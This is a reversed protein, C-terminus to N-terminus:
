DPSGRSIFKKGSMVHLAKPMVTIQVPTEGIVHGDVMVPMAPSTVICVADALFHGIRPDEPKGLYVGGTIYKILDLKTLGDFFHVNLKGDRHANVRGVNYHFGVFPMNTVLAIYGSGCFQTGNLTLAMDAPSSSILTALFDGLGALNGHQIADGSQSLASILGVSCIEMFHSSGGSCAAMGVDVGTRRGTRLLAVARAIDEPIGLSLAMNNQSGTPVIALTAGTGALVGAAATITGDGGCVAFLLFGQGLAEMVADQVRLGPGIVCVEPEFGLAQLAGAVDGAEARPKRAMGAKPNFVVKVSNKGIGTGRGM